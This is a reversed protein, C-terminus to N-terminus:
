LYASEFELILLTKTNQYNISTAGTFETKANIYHTTKSTVTIPLLQRYFTQHCFTIDTVYCISDAVNLSNNATSLGVFFDSNGTHLAYGTVQLRPIWVGIPMSLSLSGINYITGAVPSAQARDSSDTLRVTWKSRDLPFGFPAKVVSFYPSTIAANALTYDTGGYVTIITKGGSYAGVATVLFYKVTTQTLKIRNGVGIFGTVDAAISFQFTPSDVGEYTCTGLATWGLYDLYLANFYAKLNAWTLKKLVNSAASDVLPLEDADGPATKSSAAHTAEAIVTIDATGDFSIGNIMRATTLKAASGTTNQNLTPYSAPTNFNGVVKNFATLVTDTSGVTGAASSFGTLQTTLVRSATFYLNVSGEPLGDTNTAGSGPSGIVWGAEDDWNYNVVNSAAGTDVQAFDGPSAVPIATTLAAFTTYKGKYYPHYSSLPLYNAFTDNVLKASPYQTDTPSSWATVKNTVNEPTFGLADQKNNFIVWDSSLLYGNTTANANYMLLLKQSNTVYFKDYKENINSTNLVIDTTLPQGNIRRSNPVFGNIAAQTADSIPKDKDSTNDVKGLGIDLSTLGHPNGKTASHDYAIKGLDGYYADTHLVGLKLNASIEDTIKVFASGNYFYLGNAPLQATANKVFYLKGIIPNKVEGTVLFTRVSDISRQLATFARVLYAALGKDNTPPQEIAM